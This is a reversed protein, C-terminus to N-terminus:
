KLITSDTKIYNLIEDKTMDKLKDVFEDKKAKKVDPTAVGLAEQDDSSLTKIEKQLYVHVVKALDSPIERAATDTTLFTAVAGGSIIFICDRKTPTAAYGIWTILALPLMIYFFRISIKRFTEWARIDSDKNEDDVSTVRNESIQISKGISTIIYAIFSIVAFWTFINSATDFISKVGDAVTLWYFITYWNM